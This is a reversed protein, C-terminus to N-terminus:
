DESLLVVYWGFLISILVAMASSILSFEFMEQVFIGSFVASFGLSLNGKFDISFPLSNYFMKMVIILIYLFILLGALGLEATIHIFLNHAHSFDRKKIPAGPYVKFKERFNGIGAGIVPNEKFMEYANKWIYIRQEYDGTILSRYTNKFRDKLSVPLFLHSLFILIILLLIFLKKSKFFFFFGFGTIAGLFAARSLSYILNFAFIFTLFFGSIKYKLGKKYLLTLVIVFVLMMYIGFINSNIFLGLRRSDWFYKEYIGAFSVLTGGAIFIMLMRNHFEDSKNKFIYYSAFYSITIELITGMMNGTSRLSTIKVLSILALFFFLLFPATLPTNLFERWGINKVLILSGILMIILGLLPMLDGFGGFLLTMIIGTLIYKEGRSFEGVFQFYQM